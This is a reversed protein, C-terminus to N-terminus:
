SLIGGYRRKEITHEGSGITLVSFVILFNFISMKSLNRM